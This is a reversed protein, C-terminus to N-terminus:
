FLAALKAAAEPVEPWKDDDLYNPDAAELLAKGTQRIQDIWVLGAKYAAMQEENLIGGGAAASLNLQTPLSAHANIRRGVESRIGALMAEREKAAAIEAEKARIQKDTPKEIDGELITLKGDAYQWVAGACLEDLAEVLYKM